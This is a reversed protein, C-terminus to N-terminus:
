AGGPDRMMRIRAVHCGLARFGEGLALPAAHIARRVAAAIATATGLGVERTWVNATLTVLLRARAIDGGPHEEAEALTVAVPLTPLTPRATIATEPVLALVDPDAVLRARIAARLALTASM